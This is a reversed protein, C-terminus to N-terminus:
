RPWGGSRSSGTSAPRRWNPMRPAIESGEYLAREEEAVPPTASCLLATRLAALCEEFSPHFEWADLAAFDERIADSDERLRGLLVARRARLLGAIARVANPEFAAVAAFDFLDRATFSGARHELKKALIEASTEILVPRGLIWERRVPDSVHLRSAIFAVEGGPFYIRVANPEEVYDLAGLEEHRRPSLGHLVQVDRVFIDVGASRRHRYRRMLASGGGLTWAVGRREPPQAADLILLARAFLREWDTMQEQAM